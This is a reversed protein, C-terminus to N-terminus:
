EQIIGEILPWFSRDKKFSLAFIRNKLSFEYCNKSLLEKEQINSKTESIYANSLVARLDEPFVLPEVRNFDVKKALVFLGAVPVKYGACPKYDRQYFPSSFLFFKSGVKRLIATDDGLCVLEPFLKRVTTKGSDEQGTFVYGLNDKVLSSAHLIFGKNKGLIPMLAIEFFINFRSFEKRLSELPLYIKDQKVQVNQSRSKTLFIKGAPTFTARKEVLFGPYRKRLFSADEKNNCYFEILLDAVKFILSHKNMM